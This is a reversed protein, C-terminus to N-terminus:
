QLLSSTISESVVACTPNTLRLSPARDASSCRDRVIASNDRDSRYPLAGAAVINNAEHYNGQWNPESRRPGRGTDTIEESEKVLLCPSSPYDSEDHLYVFSGPVQKQGHQDLICGSQPWHEGDM